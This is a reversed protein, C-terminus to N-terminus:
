FKASLSWVALTGLLGGVTEQGSSVSGKGKRESHIGVSVTHQEALEHSPVM